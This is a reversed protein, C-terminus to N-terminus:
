QQGRLIFTTHRITRCGGARRAALRLVHDDDRRTDLGRRNARGGRARRHDRAHAAAHPRDRRRGRAVGRLGTASRRRSTPARCRTAASRALMECRRPMRSATPWRASACPARWRSCPRPSARRASDTYLDAMLSRDLKMSDFPLRRIQGLSSHGTASITSRSACAAARAAGRARRAGRAPRRRREGRHGRDRLADRPCATCARADRPDHRRLGPRAAPPRLAEGVRLVGARLAQAVRRAAPLGRRDGLPRHRRHHRREDAIAMFEEPVIAGFQANDWRVLCEVGTLEYRTSPSARSTSSSVARSARGRRAAGVRDAAPPAVTGAAGALLVECSARSRPRSPPPTPTAAAAARRRRARGRRARHGRQAGAHLGVDAASGHTSVSELMAHAVAALHEASVRSRLLMALEGDATRCVPPPRAGCSPAARASAPRARGRHQRAMRAVLKNAFEIGQAQVIRDFGHVRFAVVAAAVIGARDKCRRRWRSARPPPPEAPGTATDFYSLLRVAEEARHLRTLDQLTVIVTATRRPAARAQGARSGPARLDHRRGAGAPHHDFSFRGNGTACAVFAQRAAVQEAPDLM